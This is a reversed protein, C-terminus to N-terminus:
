RLKDALKSYEQAVEEASLGFSYIRVDAMRCATEFTSGAEDYRGIYLTRNAPKIEGSAPKSGAKTNNTYITMERGDYCAAIHYWRGPTIQGADLTEVGHLYFRLRGGIAQLFYGDQNFLGHSLFVPIQFDESELKLWMMITLEYQTNFIDNHPIALHSGNRFYATPVGNMDEVVASGGWSGGGLAEKFDVSLVPKADDYPKAICQVPESAAAENGFRDVAALKYYFAAGPEAKTSYSRDIWHNAPLINDPNLLTWKGETSEARYVRYGTIGFQSAPWRLRVKGPAAQATLVLPHTECRLPAKIRVAGPVSAQVGSLPEVRYEYTKGPAASRDEYWNDFARAIEQYEGNLERRSIRYVAAQGRWELLVVGCGGEYARLEAPPTDVADARAPTRPARISPLVTVRHLLDTGPWVSVPNGDADAAEIRYEFPKGSDIVAEFYRENKKELELGCFQEEGIPRWYAKLKLGDTHVVAKIPFPRGSEWLRNPNIPAIVQGPSSVNTREADPAAGGLKEAEAMARRVEYWAKANVAALVGMEGKNSTRLALTDLAEAFGSGRLKELAQSSLASAKENNGSYYAERADALLKEVAGGTRLLAATREYGLTWRANNLYYAVRETQPQFGSAAKMGAIVSELRKVIAELKAIKEPDTQSGWSFSACEMQGSGGIWRYGLAQLDMLISAMEPAYRQGFNRLAYDKYFDEYTAGPNWALYSMYAHSEEVDRTRWHIGLIGKSGKALADRVANGFAKANAQAHWQDGDYEFWPIPWYERDKSLKGYAQSVTNSVIINDLASFIIDKPLVKDLGIYFDTFRLWNDGGWGSIVLRVNPANEKIIRRAQLAIIGMRVAEVQKYKNGLYSFHKEWRRYYAGFDSDLSVTPEQPSVSAAEYQWLWIYDLMPYTKLLHVLRKELIAISDPNTLDPLNVEFGLCVKLGRGKGYTLAKALLSQSDAISRERDDRYLSPGAGFYEDPFYKSTNGAFESTKMPFTGWCSNATSQLPEGYVFRGNEPYAGFPEHDYSHFGVFNNGSKVLNDFFWAYDEFDWATPSDFFNYWPLTGRISFAPKKSVNLDLLKFERREPLVDGGIYFGAGYERLLAYAGYLVARGTNGSVLLLRRNGRNVTRLLFGEDGLDKMEKSLDSIGAIKEPTGLVICDSGSDKSIPLLEGTISYLYTQLESAALKTLRDANADVVIATSVAFAANFSIALIAFIVFFIKM